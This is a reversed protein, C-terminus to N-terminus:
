LGPPVVASSSGPPVSGPGEERAAADCPGRAPVRGREALSVEGGEAVVLHDLLAIGLLTGAEALRDTVALDEPSPEPDGSPHNHAVVVASAGAIVAPRFVERPHVLSSSVTGRSVTVEALLRLRVDLALVVFVEVPEAVLRPRVLRSVAERRDLRPRVRLPLRERRRLLERAAHLPALVDFAAEGDRVLAADFLRREDLASLERPVPRGLLAALLEDRTLSAPDM